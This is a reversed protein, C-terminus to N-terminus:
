CVSATCRKNLKYKLIENEKFHNYITQAKLKIKQTSM